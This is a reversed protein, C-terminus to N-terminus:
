VTKQLQMLPNLHLWKDTDDVRLGFYNFMNKQIGSFCTKRTAMLLGYYKNYM